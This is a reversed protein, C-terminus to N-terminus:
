DWTSSLNVSGLHLTKLWFEGTPGDHSSWIFLHLKGSNLYLKHNYWRWSSGEHPIFNGGEKSHANSESLSVSTAQTQQLSPTWNSNSPYSYIGYINGSFCPTPNIQNTGSDLFPIGFLTGRVIGSYRSGNPNSSTYQREWSAEVEVSSYSELDGIVIDIIIKDGATSVQYDVYEGVGGVGRMTGPKIKYNEGNHALPIYSDAPASGTLTMDSIKIGM